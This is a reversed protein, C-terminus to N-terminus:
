SSAKDHVICLFTSDIYLHLPSSLLLIVPVFAPYVAFASCRIGFALIVIPGPQLSALQIPLVSPIPFLFLLRLHVRFIPSLSSAPCSRLSVLSPRYGISMSSPRPELTASVVPHIEFCPSPRSLRLLFSGRLFPYVTCGPFFMTFIPYVPCGGHANSVHDCGGRLFLYVTVGLFALISPRFPFRVYSVKNHVRLLTSAVSSTSPQCLPPTACSRLGSPTSVSFPNLSLFLRHISVPFWSRLYHYHIAHTSGLLRFRLVTLVLTCSRSM